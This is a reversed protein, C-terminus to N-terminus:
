AGMQGLPANEHWIIAGVDDANAAGEIAGPGFKRVGVGVIGGGNLRGLVENM